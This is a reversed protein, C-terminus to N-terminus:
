ISPLHRFPKTGGLLHFEDLLILPPGSPKSPAHTPPTRDLVDQFTKPLTDFRGETDGYGASATKVERLHELASWVASSWITDRGIMDGPLATLLVELKTLAELFTPATELPLWETSFVYHMAPIMDLDGDESADRVADLLFAQPALAAWIGKSYRDDWSQFAWGHKSVLTNIREFM